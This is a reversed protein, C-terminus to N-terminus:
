VCYFAYTNLKSDSSNQCIRAAEFNHCWDLYLVNGSCWFTGKTGKLDIGRWWQWGQQGPSSGIKNRDGYIAKIPELVKYLHSTYRIHEKTDVKKQEIYRQHSGDLHTCTDATWEKKGRLLLENYSCVVIQTDMWKTISMQTTGLKPNTHNFSSQCRIRIFIHVHIKVERPYIDLLLVM